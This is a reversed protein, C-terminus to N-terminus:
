NNINITNINMADKSLEVASYTLNIVVEQIGADEEAGEFLVEESMRILINKLVQFLYITM